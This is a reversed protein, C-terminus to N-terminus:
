WDIYDGLLHLLESLGVAEGDKTVYVTFGAGNKKLEVKYFVGSVCYLVEADDVLYGPYEKKLYEKVAGPLSSAKVDWTSYVWEDDTNFYVDKVVSNHMIEVEFLGNDTYESDLVRAGRYESKIFDSINDNLPYDLRNDCAVVSLLLVILPLIKKMTITM